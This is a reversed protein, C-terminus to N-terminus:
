LVPVSVRGTYRPSARTYLEHVFRAGTIPDPASFKWGGELLLPEVFSISVVGELKKLSRFIM